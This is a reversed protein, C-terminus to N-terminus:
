FETHWFRRVRDRYETVQIGSKDYRIAIAGSVATVLPVAGGARYASLVERRPFGYRNRYGASFLVYRPRVARIFATSSSSTSGHHPAVLVESRLAAAHHKILQREADREIDGTLLLSHRGASVRLVCSRDNGRLTEDPPPHLIQFDVGDWTWADGSRCASAPFYDIAAVDSTRIAGVRIGALVQPLGGVHDGDGHSAILMDVRRVGRYKLYPVVVAEGADFRESYRPGADYLLTRHRTHVAAALGQGVDLLIFEFRGHQLSQPSPMLAPALWIIGLWRGPLGRPTLLLVAGILAACLAPTSPPPTYLVGAGHRSILELFVWLWQLADAGLELLFSGAGAHVFIVAVGALVIPVTLLSVWPVAICNAPVSLLPLQQFWFLLAPALGVAVLWQVRGWRWWFGGARPRAAMGFLIVAVALFSLWFGASMVAFPDVLLVLLLALALIDTSRTIRNFVVLLLVVSLMILTRQTPISFGALASYFSAALAAMLAAVRPGACILSVRGLLPWSRRAIFYALAAVMGIHLGSIALLHNTGTHTLVRWQHQTMAGRDGIALGTILAKMPHAALARDIADRIKWRAYDFTHWAAGGLRTNGPQDVVYGTAGIRAQFLYGEYDYGGPNMFGYPRMLKVRLRWREGPRVDPHNRYWNLRLAAPRGGGPADLPWRDVHFDFRLSMPRSEPLGAVRGEVVWHRGELSRDLRSDLIGDARFLAWLMGFAFWAPWRWRDSRCCFWVAAPLLWSLAPPPLHPLQILLIIGLLFLLSGARM